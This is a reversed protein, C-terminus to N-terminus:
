RRRLAAIGLLALAALTSPEPVLTPTISLDDLALGADNGVDNTDTWRIFLSSGAPISVSLAASVLVRHEPANGDLAGNTAVAPEGVADLANFAVLSGENLYNSSDATGGSVGYAFALVNQTSTSSRWQERYFEILLSTIEVGTNNVLETGIAPVNSGSALSGLAREASGASGYSYVAGTNSLGDNAILSLTSGTGSVKTADFGSGALANVFGVTANLPTSGTNILGDFNETVKNGDVLSIAANASLALAALAVMSGLLKRM